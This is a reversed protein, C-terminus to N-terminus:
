SSRSSDDLLEKLLPAFVNAGHERVQALWDQQFQAVAAVSAKSPGKLHLIYKRQLQHRSYSEEDRIFFNFDACALYQVVADNITRRDFDSFDGLAGAAGNLSLQGGRWRRIDRYLDIIEPVLCLSEYTGLYRRFFRRAGEGSKGGGPNTRCAAFIVGENLTMMKTKSDRFTVAVDFGGDFVGALPWNPFADSDLLVTNSTFANSHLYATVAVVREYMLWAPALPLRVVVVDDPVFSTNDDAATVYIIRCDPNFGRAMAFTHQLVPGYDIQGQDTRIDVYDIIRNEEPLTLHFTLITLPAPPLGAVAADFRKALEAVRVAVDAPPNNVAAEVTCRLLDQMNDLKKDSSM